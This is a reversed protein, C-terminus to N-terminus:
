KSSKAASVEAQKVTKRTKSHIFVKYVLVQQRLKPMADLHDELTYHIWYNGM